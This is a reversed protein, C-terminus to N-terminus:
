LMSAKGINALTTSSQKDDQCSAKSISDREIPHRTRAQKHSIKITHSCAFVNADGVPKGAPNGVDGPPLPM